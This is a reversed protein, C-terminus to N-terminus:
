CIFTFLEEVVSFSQSYNKLKHRCIPFYNLFELINFALWKPILTIPICGNPNSIHTSLRFSLPHLKEKWKDPICSLTCTYLGSELPLSKLKTKIKQLRKSMPFIQNVPFAGTVVHSYWGVLLWLPFSPMNTFCSYIITKTTTQKQKM